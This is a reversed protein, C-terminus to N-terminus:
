DYDGHIAALLRERADIFAPESKLARPDEGALFRRGFDLDQQLVIRGPGPALVVVSTSLFVAEEISHTILLAGAHSERWLKLLLEHMRDRTMADLAGLPEDMLLFAPEAALARAIGVRQRQGGSLQWVPKGEHEALGVQALWHRARELRAARPMGALKLPLAVNEGVSRWPLLADDQFVVARDPGPGTVPQGDIAIRGSTPAVFGAALNLLSTKGSGSQGVVSIFGGRPLTFTVDRLVTQGNDYALSVRSLRLESM